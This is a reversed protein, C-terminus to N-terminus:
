RLVDDTMLLVDDPVKVGIRSATRLNLRMQYKAPGEFPIERPHEGRLIRAMAAVLREEVGDRKPRYQLLLGDRDFDGPNGWFSLAIRHRVALASVAGLDPDLGGDYHGCRFGDRRLAEFDGPLGPFDDGEPKLLVQRVEMGAARAAWDFAAWREKIQARWSIWAMRTAGPVLRRLVDIQKLFVERVGRHTGTVNGGPSGLSRAFGEGVPDFLYAAIPLNPAAERLAGTLNGGEAIAGDYSGRAIERAVKPIAAGWDSRMPIVHPVLKFNVGDRLGLEAFPQVYRTNFYKLVEKPLDGAEVDLLAALAVRKMGAAGALGGPLGAAFACAAASGLFRRRPNM